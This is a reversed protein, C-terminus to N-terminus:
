SLAQMAHIAFHCFISLHCFDMMLIYIIVGRKRRDYCRQWFQLRRGNREWIWQSSNSVQLTLQLFVRMETHPNILVAEGLVGLRLAIRLVVEASCVCAEIVLSIRTSLFSARGLGASDNWDGDELIPACTEPPM